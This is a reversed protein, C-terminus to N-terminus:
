YMLKESVDQFIVDLDLIESWLKRDLINIKYIRQSQQCAIFKFLKYKWDM